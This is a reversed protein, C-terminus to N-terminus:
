IYRPKIYKFYIFIFPMKFEIKTYATPEMVMEIPGPILAVKMWKVRIFGLTLGSCSSTNLPNISPNELRIISSIDSSNTSILQGKIRRADPWAAYLSTHVAGCGASDM